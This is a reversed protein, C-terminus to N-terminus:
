FFFLIAYVAAFTDGHCFHSGSISLPDQFTILDLNYIQLITCCNMLLLHENRIFFKFRSPEILLQSNGNCLTQTNFTDVNIKVNLEPPMSLWACWFGCLPLWAAKCLVKCVCFKAWVLLRGEPRDFVLETEM